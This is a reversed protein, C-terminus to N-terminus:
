LLYSWDSSLACAVISSNSTPRLYRCLADADREWYAIWVNDNLPRGDLSRIALDFEPTRLAITILFQSKLKQGRGNLLIFNM